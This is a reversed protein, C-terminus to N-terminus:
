RGVTVLSAAVLIVVVLVLLQGVLLRRELALDEDRERRARAVELPDDVMGPVDSALARPQTM